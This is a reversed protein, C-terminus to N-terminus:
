HLAAQVSADNLLKELLEQFAKPVAEKAHSAPDFCNGGVNKEGSVRSEALQKLDRDYITLAADYYLGTDCYSDNRWKDLTLLLFRDAASDKFKVLVTEKSDSFAIELPVAKYGANKLANVLVGRMDQSLPNNSKTEVDWPNGFGARFTGVYRPNKEGNKVYPRQDHVGVAVTKDGNKDLKPIPGTYDIKQGVVCGSLLFMCFMLMLVLFNEKMM